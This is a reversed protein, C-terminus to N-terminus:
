IKPRIKDMKWKTPNNVIYERIKNLSKENQIIKEYFRPQWAFNQYGDAHIRKTCKSKFQNMMSGLSNATLYPKKHIGTSVDRRSTEVVINSPEKIIIIGHLHDPMITFADLEINPRIKKTLNWEEFVIKGINSLVM